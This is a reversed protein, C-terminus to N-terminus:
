AAECAEEGLGVRAGDELGQDAVRLVVRGEGGAQARVVEVLLAAAVPEGEFAGDCAAFQGGSDVRVRRDILEHPRNVM